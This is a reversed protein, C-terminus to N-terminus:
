LARVLPSKRTSITDRRFLERLQSFREAPGGCGWIHHRKASFRDLADYNHGQTQLSLVRRIPALAHAEFVRNLLRQRDQVRGVRAPNKLAENAWQHALGQFVWANKQQGKGRQDVERRDSPVADLHAWAPQALLGDSWM